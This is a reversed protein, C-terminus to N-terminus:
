KRWSETLIVYKCVHLILLAGMMHFTLNTLHLHTYTNASVDKRQSKCVLELKLELLFGQFSNVEYKVSIKKEFISSPMSVM